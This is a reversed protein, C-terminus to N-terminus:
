GPASHCERVRLVTDENAGGAWRRLSGTPRRAAQCAIEHWAFSQHKPQLPSFGQCREESVAVARVTAGPHSVSPSRRHWVLATLAHPPRFLRIPQLARPM